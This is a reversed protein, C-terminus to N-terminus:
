QPPLTQEYGDVMHEILLFHAQSRANPLAEKLAQLVTAANEADVRFMLNSDEDVGPQEKKVKAFRAALEGLNQAARPLGVVDTPCDNVADIATSLEAISDLYMGGRVTDFRM